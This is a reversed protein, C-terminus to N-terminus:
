PIYDWSPTSPDSTVSTTSTSSSATANISNLTCGKGFGERSDAVVIVFGFSSNGEAVSSEAVM